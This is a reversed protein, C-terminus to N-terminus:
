IHSLPRPVEQDAPESAIRTGGADVKDLKLRRMRRYLTARGIGLERAAASVNGETRALARELEAREASRLDSALKRSALIDAIPRPSALIKDTIGLTQRATRTAGIVLDYSDVALLAAGRYGHEPAMVIRCGPFAERFSDSEIRRAADAVLRGILSAVDVTLDGRCSSVDLVAALRANEDFVPAGMCSMATNRTHFHQDRHITVPRREALCTGIGNTGEKGESWVAGTWLGWEAFVDDDGAMARRELILGESDTLLVSCGSLGVASFLRELTPAAIEILAGLRERAEHLVAEDVRDPPSRTEPDLGHYLLSRRWSAALASGAASTTSEAAARVQDAHGVQRGTKLPEDM